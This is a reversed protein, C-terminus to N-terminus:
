VSRGEGNLLHMCRHNVRTIERHAILPTSASIRTLHAPQLSPWAQSPGRLRRPTCTTCQRITRRRRRHTHTCQRSYSPQETRAMIMAFRGVDDLVCYRHRTYSCVATKNTSASNKRCITLTCTQLAALHMPQPEALASETGAPREAHLNHEAPDYIPEGPAHPLASSFIQDYM